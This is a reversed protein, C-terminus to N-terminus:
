VKEFYEQMLSDFLRKNEDLSKQVEFKLKDVHNVFDSFQIQLQKPPVIVELEELQQKTIAERTAGNSTAINWLFTQFSANTLQQNIFLPEVMEKCRLISVHQNVRAPIIAGPVVCCRAVSAGTINLLVDKEKVTVNKLKDAQEVDIFALDKYEFRDNHVNMSRIFSVGEDKYTQNGGKPTAGSGIKSMLKKCKLKDWVMPNSIPDGFMQVFRSKILTDYEILQEKRGEIIMNTRNLIDVIEKQIDMSPIEFKIEKLIKVSAINKIGSGKSELLTINYKFIYNFYEYDVISNDITMKLLAQNIVGREADEPLQYIEGITGSCSMIFDYPKVEFRKLENFKDEDIHYSGYELTKRIANGQEYVKYTHDSKDVFFDKKLASGFPGRIMSACIDQLRYEM